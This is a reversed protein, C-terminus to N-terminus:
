RQGEVRATVRRVQHTPTSSVIVPPAVSRVSAQTPAPGASPADIATREKDERVHLKMNMFSTAHFM